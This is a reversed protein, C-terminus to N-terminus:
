HTQSWNNGVAYGMELPVKLKYHNNTMEVAKSILEGARTYALYYLNGISPLVKCEGEIKKSATKAEDKTKYLKSDNIGDISLFYTNNKGEIIESWVRDDNKSFTLADEESNFKKFTFRSKSEELAVEDHMIIMLQNFEMNKWDDKFFDIQLGEETLLQDHFVAMTKTTIAGFSQFLSNLLAHKFRTPIKRGDIGTIFKKNGKVEWWKEVAAKLKALPEAAFWFAAVIGEATKLDVGLMTAIKAAMAGFTLGYKVSKASGRAFERGIVESIGRATVSHVDNPQSLTLSECYPKGEIDYPYCYHGEGRAELSAMDSGIKLCNSDVKFLSRMQHGFLSTHRPVNVVGKHRMRGTGAGLTDAETPVRGDERLIAMYGKEAEEDSDWDADGGLISSRRHKYTLYEVIDQVYPFREAIRELDKCLEKEQGITFSPNTLVKCGYKEAKEMMKSKLSLYTPRARLQKCRDSCFESNLTEEIYRDVAVELEEKTRKIKTGSKLTIDKMKYESPQWGLSVLWEKIHTTNKIEAVMTTKLAKVEVPLMMKEGFLEVSLEEENVSGGHKDVFNRLHAAVTKETFAVPPFSYNGDGNADYDKNLTVGQVHIQNNKADYEADWKDLWSQGTKSVSGNANIFRKPFPIEKELIQSAPPTHEKLFKKTAPRPPLLPEVRQRREEMLEDLQHICKEALEIDFKFGRHSSRTVIEAVKKELRIAPEWNWNDQKREKELYHFVDTNSKVDFINYYLMDVAFTNYKDKKPVHPRFDVKEAGGAVKSLKDLSHGCLRDSNLTKSLIMTDVIDVERGCWTDSEGDLGGVTYDMDFYLKCSLFDFNIGNHFVVKDLDKIGKIYDPFEGLQYHTYEIPEYDKLEYTYKDDKEIFERGDLIYKEGDYFAIIENTEHIELVICHTKYTDKLKYPSSNYCISENNLLNNTEIDGTINVAM